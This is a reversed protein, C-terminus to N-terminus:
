DAKPPAVPDVGAGEVSDCPELAMRFEVKYLGVFSETPAASAKRILSTLSLALMADKGDCKSEAIVEGSLNKGLELYNWDGRVDNKSPKRVSQGVFWVEQDVQVKDGEAVNYIGETVAKRVVMKLGAPASVPVRINCSARAFAANGSGDIQHTDFLYMFKNFNDTVLYSSEKPCGTGGHIPEGVVVTQANATLATLILASIVLFPKM